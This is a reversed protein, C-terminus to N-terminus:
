SPMMATSPIQHKIAELKRLFDPTDHIYSAAQPVLPKIFHDVYMSINETPSGNGSVIPRGPNGPKHIKPLLYFRAPRCDTPSLFDHAKDTLDGCSHMGDLTSQIAEREDRPLNDHIRNTSHFSNDVNSSVVQIYTEIAPIRNKPPVWTRFPETPSTWSFSVYAYVVTTSLLM